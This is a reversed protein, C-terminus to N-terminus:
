IGIVLHFGEILSIANSSTIREEIGQIIVDPDNNLLRMAEVASQVKSRGEELSKHIIQRHLNSVEM